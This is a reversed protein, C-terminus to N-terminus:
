SAPNEKPGKKGNAIMVVVDFDGPTDLDSRAKEYDFGQVGHAVLGNSSADL